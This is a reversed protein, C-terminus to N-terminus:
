DARIRGGDEPVHDPIQILVADSQDLRDLLLWPRSGAAFRNLDQSRRKVGPM